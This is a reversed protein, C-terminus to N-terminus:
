RRVAVPMRRRRLQAAGLVAEIEDDDLGEEQLGLAIEDADFGAGKLRKVWEYPPEGRRLRPLDLERPTAVPTALSPDDFLKATEGVWCAYLALLGLATGIPFGPLMVVALFTQLGRGRGQEINLALYLHPAGLILAITWVIAIGQWHAGFVLTFLAAFGYLVVACWNLASLLQLSGM